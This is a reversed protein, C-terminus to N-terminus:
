KHEGTNNYQRAHQSCLPVGQVVKKPSRLCQYFGVGFTHHVAHRCRTKDVKSELSSDQRYVFIKPKM